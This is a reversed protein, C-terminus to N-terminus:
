YRMAYEHTSLVLCYYHRPQAVCVCARVFGCVCACVCVGVCVHVRVCQVVGCPTEHACHIYVCTHVHIHIIICVMRRPSVTSHSHRVIRCEYM